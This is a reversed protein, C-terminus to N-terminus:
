KEDGKPLNQQNGGFGFADESSSFRHTEPGAINFSGRMRKDYDMSADVFTSRFVGISRYTTLLDTVPRLIPERKGITQLAEDNCTVSGIKGKRNRIPKMGCEEYFFYATQKPSRYWPATNKTVKKVGFYREGSYKELKREIAAGADFLQMSLEQRRALDQRVGRMTMKLTPWWLSLKFNFQERLNQSDLMPDIADTIEHTYCCDKANYMWYKEEDEPLTRYDKLEDKWYTYHPVVMSAIFDLSKRESPFLCHWAVMTDFRLNPRVGWYRVFYQADYAFNQGTLYANPHSLIRRSLLTLAVEQEKTWYGSSREHCMLPICIAERPALSFGVCSLQRAVTEIDCAVTRSGKDLDSLIGTLADTAESFSPRVHLNLAEFSTPNDLEHRARRLDQVAIHRWNWMRLIAAPHYTPIIRAGSSDRLLSGRWKSIGSNGTLAWLATDGLAIIVSPQVRGIEARLDDMGQRLRPGPIRVTKTIKEYFHKIDNNPPREKCVNTIFCETRLIGAEHLMRTLEAGSAGIFPKGQREEDVGPAEGVVMIRANSPGEAPVRRTM